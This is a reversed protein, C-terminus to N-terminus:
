ARRVRGALVLACAEVGPAAQSSRYKHRRRPASSMASPRNPCSATCLRATHRVLPRAHPLTTTTPAPPTASAPTSVPLLSVAPRLTAPTSCPELAAVSGISRPTTSATALLALLPINDMVRLTDVCHQTRKDASFSLFPDRTQREPRTRQSQRGAM